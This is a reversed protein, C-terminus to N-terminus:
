RKLDYSRTTREGARVTVSEEAPRPNPGQVRVRHKGAPLRLEVPAEGHSVGDVTV